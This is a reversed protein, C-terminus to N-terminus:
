STAKTERPKITNSPLHCAFSGDYIIYLHVSDFTTHLKVMVRSQLERRPKNDEGKPNPPIFPNLEKDPIFPNLVNFLSKLYTPVFILM